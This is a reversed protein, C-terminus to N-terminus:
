CWFRWRLYDPGRRISYNAALLMWDRLVCVVAQLVTLWM